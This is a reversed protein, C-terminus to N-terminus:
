EAVSKGQEEVDETIEQVQGEGGPMATVCRKAAGKRVLVSFCAHGVEVERSTRELREGAVEERWRGRCRVFYDPSVASKISFASAPPPPLLSPIRRHLLVRTRRPDRWSSPPAVTRNKGTRLPSCLMAPCICGVVAFAWYLGEKNKRPGGMRHLM